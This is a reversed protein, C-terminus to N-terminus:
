TLAKTAPLVTKIADLNWICGSACDWGYYWSTQPNLRMSWIYPAIVIGDWEQAVRSWDIAPIGAAWTVRYEETFAMLQDASCIYCINAEDTLTVETVTALSDLAFSEGECWSPWDDEGERSVWLGTPKGFGLPEGQNYTRSRNFDFAKATYHLLRM